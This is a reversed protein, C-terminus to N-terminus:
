LLLCFSYIALYHSVITIDLALVLYLSLTHASWQLGEIWKKHILFDYRSVQDLKLQSKEM